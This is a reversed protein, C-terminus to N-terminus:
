DDHAGLSAPPGSPKRAGAVLWELYAQYGRYGLVLAAGVLVVAGLAGAIVRGIM